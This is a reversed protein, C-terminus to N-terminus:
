VRLPDRDAHKGHRPEIRITLVQFRLAERHQHVLHCDGPATTHAQRKKATDTFTLPVSLRDELLDRAAVTGELRLFPWVEDWGLPRVCTGGLGLVRHVESWLLM